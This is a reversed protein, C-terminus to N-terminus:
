LTRERVSIALAAETDVVSEEARGVRLLAAGRGRLSWVMAPELEIARSFVEVAEENRHLTMHASALNNLTTADTPSLQLAEDYIPLAEVARDASAPDCRSTGSNGTENTGLRDQNLFSDTNLVSNCLNFCGTNSKDCRAFLAGLSNFAALTYSQEQEAEATGSRYSQEADPWYQEAGDHGHLWM